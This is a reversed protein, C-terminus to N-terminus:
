ILDEVVPAPNDILWQDYVNEAIVKTPKGQADYVFLKKIELYNADTIKVLIKTDRVVAGVKYVESNKISETTTGTVKGDDDVIDIKNSHHEKAWWTPTVELYHRLSDFGSIHDILGAKIFMHYVRGAQHGSDVRTNGGNAWIPAVRTGTGAEITTCYIHDQWALLQLALQIEAALTEPNSTATTERKKFKLGEKM